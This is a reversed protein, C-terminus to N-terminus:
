PSEEGEENKAAATLGATTFLIEYSAYYRPEIDGEKLTEIAEDIEESVKGELIDTSKSDVLIAEDVWSYQLISNLYYAADSKTDFQVKLTVKQKESVELEQIFGRNPLIATLQKLLFVNDVKQENAWTIANKLDKASDSEQYNKLSAESSKVINNSLVLSDEVSNLKKKDNTYQWFFLGALLAALAAAALVWVLMATKKPEKKPLLNIEVLM